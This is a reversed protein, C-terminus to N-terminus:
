PFPQLHFQRSSFCFSSSYRGDGMGLKVQDEKTTEVTNNNEQTM